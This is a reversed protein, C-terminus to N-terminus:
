YNATVSFDEPKCRSVLGWDQDCAGIYEGAALTDVIRRMTACIKQESADDPFSIQEDQEGTETYIAFRIM